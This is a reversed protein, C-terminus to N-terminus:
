KGSKAESGCGKEKRSKIKFADYGGSTQFSLRLTPAVYAVLVQSSTHLSLVAASVALWGDWRRFVNRRPFGSFSQYARPIIGESTSQPQDHDILPM